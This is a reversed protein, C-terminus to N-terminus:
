FAPRPDVVPKPSRREAEALGEAAARARAATDLPRGTIHPLFIPTACTRTGPEWWNGVSECKQAPIVYMVQYAFAAAVAAVFVAAFGLMLRNYFRNMAEKIPEALDRPL